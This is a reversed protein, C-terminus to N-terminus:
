QDPTILLLFCLLSAGIIIYEYILSHLIEQVAYLSNFVLILFEKIVYKYVSLEQLTNQNYM